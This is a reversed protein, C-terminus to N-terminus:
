LESLFLEITIIGSAYFSEVLKGWVSFNSACTVDIYIEPASFQAM